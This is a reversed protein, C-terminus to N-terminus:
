PYNVLGDKLQRSRSPYLTALIGSEGRLFERWISCQTNCTVVSAGLCRVGELCLRKHTKEGDTLGMGYEELEAAKGVKGGEEEKGEM